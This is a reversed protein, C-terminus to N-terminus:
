KKSATSATRHLKLSKEQAKAALKAERKAVKAIQNQEKKKRDWNWKSVQSFTFNLLIALDCKKQYDWTPNKQYEAELIDKEGSSKKQRRLKNKIREHENMLLKQRQEIDFDVNLRQQQAITNQQASDKVQQLKQQIQQNILNQQQLGGILLQAPISQQLPKTFQQQNASTVGCSKILSKQQQLKLPSRKREEKNQQFDKGSQNQSEFSIGSIASGNRVQPNRDTDFPSPQCRTSIRTPPNTAILDLDYNVVGVNRAQQLFEAPLVSSALNNPRAQQRVQLQSVPIHSITVINGNQLQRTQQGNQIQHHHTVSTQDQDPAADNLMDGYALSNISQMSNVFQTGQKTAIRISRRRDICFISDKGALQSIQSPITQLNYLEYVQPDNNIFFSNGTSIRSQIQQIPTQLIFQSEGRGLQLMSPMPSINFTASGISNLNRIHYQHNHNQITNPNSNM